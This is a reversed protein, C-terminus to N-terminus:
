MVEGMLTKVVELMDWLAGPTVQGRIDHMRNRCTFLKKGCSVFEDKWMSTEESDEIAEWDCAWLPFKHTINGEGDDKNVRSLPHMEEMSSMPKKGPARVRGM